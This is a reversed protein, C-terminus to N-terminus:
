YQRLIEKVENNTLPRRCPKDKGCLSVLLKDLDKMDKSAEVKNYQYPAPEPAVEPPPEQDMEETACGSLALLFFLVYKM